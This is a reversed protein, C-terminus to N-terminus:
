TTAVQAPLDDLLGSKVLAVAECVIMFYIMDVEIGYFNVNGKNERQGADKQTAARLLREVANKLLPINAEPKMNLFM